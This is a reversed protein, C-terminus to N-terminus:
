TQWRRYTSVSEIVVGGTSVRLDSNSHTGFQLAKNTVYIRRGEAGSEDHQAAYEVM